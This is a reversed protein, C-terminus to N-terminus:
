LHTQHIRLSTTVSSSAFLVHQTVVILWFRARHRSGSEDKSKVISGVDADDLGCSTIRVVSMFIVCPLLRLLKCSPKSSYARKIGCDRGMLYRGESTSLRIRSEVHISYCRKSCNSKHTLSVQFITFHMGINARTSIAECGVPFSCIVFLTRSIRGRYRRSSYGNSSWTRM